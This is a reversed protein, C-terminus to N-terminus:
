VLRSNASAFAKLFKSARDTAGTKPWRNRYQELCKRAEDNAGINALLLLRTEDRDIEFGLVEGADYLGLINQDSQLVELFPIGKNLLAEGIETLAIQASAEDLVTWWKDSGQM